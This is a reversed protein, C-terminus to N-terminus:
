AICRFAQFLSVASWCALICAPMLFSVSSMQTYELVSHSSAIFQLAPLSGQVVPLFYLSVVTSTVGASRSSIFDATVSMAKGAHDSDQSLTLGPQECAQFFATPGIMPM